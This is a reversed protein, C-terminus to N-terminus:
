PTITRNKGMASGIPILQCSSLGTLEDREPWAATRCHASQKTTGNTDIDTFSQPLLHTGGTTGALHHRQDHGTQAQKHHEQM